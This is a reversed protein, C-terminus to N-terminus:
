AAAESIVHEVSEPQLSHLYDAAKQAHSAATFIFRKDNKLVELWNAIYAAHDDCVEPTIGLDACLFASGLEAVLEERAYGEDGWQKRGFDRDLRKAHRTWHTLEHAVTAAYSEADRFAEFPPMQIYDEGIAYFARNGGHRIHAATNSFFDDAHNLRQYTPLPDAPQAYYHAPLDDIQEVNFVTYGKMFAFNRESEEGTTDDTETKHVTDAYVVFSGHEGKRVRGGLDCAQKFTMWLPAVYGKEMSEGWLLLVNVGRYPINNARLPRSIRGSAHEVSWPKLWPRVGTELSEIIKNTVRTYIDIKPTTQTTM